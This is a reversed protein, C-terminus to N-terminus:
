ARTDRRGLDTVRRAARTLGSERCCRANAALRDNCAARRLDRVHENAAASSLGYMNM